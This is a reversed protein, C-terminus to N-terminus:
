RHKHLIFIYILIDCYIMSYIVFISYNISHNGTAWIMGGILAFPHFEATLGNRIIEYILGLVWIGISMIMQFYMGDGMDYTKLPIFNSGFFIAACGAAIYGTTKTM